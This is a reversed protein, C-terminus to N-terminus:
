ILQNKQLLLRLVLTKKQVCIRQIKLSKKFLPQLLFEKQHVEMTGSVIRAMDMYDSVTNMLRNSSKELISYYKM